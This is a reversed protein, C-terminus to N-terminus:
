RRSELTAGQFETYEVVFCGGLLLKPLLVIMGFLEIGEWCNIGGSNSVKIWPNKFSM